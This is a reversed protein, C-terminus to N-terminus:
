DPIPAPKDPISATKDARIGSAPNRVFFLLDQLIQSKGVGGPLDGQQPIEVRHSRMLAAQDPFIGSSNGIVEHRIDHPHGGPLQFLEAYISIIIGSRVAGAHPIIDMYAIQSCAMQFSKFLQLMYFAGSGPVQPRAMTARHQLNHVGKLLGAPFLNGIYDSGAPSTIDGFAIRIDSPGLFLKM